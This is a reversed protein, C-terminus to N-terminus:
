KQENEFMFLRYVEKASRVDIRRGLDKCAGNRFLNQVFCQSNSRVLSSNANVDAL